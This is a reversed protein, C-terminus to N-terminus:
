SLTSTGAVPGGLSDTFGLSNVIAKLILDAVAQAVADEETTSSGAGHATAFADALVQVAAADIGAM